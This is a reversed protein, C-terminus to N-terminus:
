VREAKQAKNLAMVVAEYFDTSSLTAGSVADVKNINQIKMLQQPLVPDIYQIPYHTTYGTIQVKTIKDKKLTVSVTVSGIRTQGTGEYTGDKYKQKATVKSAVRSVTAEISLPAGPAVTHATVLEPTISISLIASSCLALLKGKVTKSKGLM